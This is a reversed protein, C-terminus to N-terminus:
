NTATKTPITDIISVDKINPEMTEIAPVVEKVKTKKEKTSKEDSIEGDEKIESDESDDEQDELETEPQPPQYHPKSQPQHEAAPVVKDKEFDEDKKEKMKTVNEVLKNESAGFEKSIIQGNKETKKGESAVAEEQATAKTAQLRGM